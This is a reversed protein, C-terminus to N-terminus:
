YLTMRLTCVRVRMCRGAAPTNKRGTVHHKAAAPGSDSAYALQKACAITLAGTSPQYLDM